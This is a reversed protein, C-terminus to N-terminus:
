SNTENIKDLARHLAIKNGLKRNWNDKKSCMSIGWHEKANLDRVQICTILSSLKLDKHKFHEICSQPLEDLVNDSIIRHIVRVKYGNKRLFEITINKKDM